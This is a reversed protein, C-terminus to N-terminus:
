QRRGGASSQFTEFEPKTPPIPRVKTKRLKEAARAAITATGIRTSRSSLRRAASTPTATTRRQAVTAQGPTWVSPSRSGFHDFANATAPTPSAKPSLAHAVNCPLGSCGRVLAAPSRARSTTPPIASNKAAGYM